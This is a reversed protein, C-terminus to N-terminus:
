STLSVNAGLTSEIALINPVISTDSVSNGFISDIASKSTDKAGPKNTTPRKGKYTKRGKPPM